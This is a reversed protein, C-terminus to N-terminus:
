IKHWGQGGGGEGEGEEGEGRGIAIIHTCHQTGSRWQSQTLGTNRAPGGSRDHSALTAHRVEFVSRTLGTNRPPGWGRDHTALTAHRVQVAIMHTGHSADPRLWFIHRDSTKTAAHCSHCSRAVNWFFLPGSTTGTNTMVREFIYCGMIDPICEWGEVGRIIDARTLSSCWVCLQSSLRVSCTDSTDTTCKMNKLRDPLLGRRVIGVRCTMTPIVRLLTIGKKFFCDKPCVQGSQGLSPLPQQGLLCLSEPICKREEQHHPSGDATGASQPAAEQAIEPALCFHPLCHPKTEQLKHVAHPMWKQSQACSKPTWQCQEHRKEPNGSEKSRAPSHPRWPVPLKHTHGQRCTVMVMLMLMLRSLTRGGKSQSVGWETRVQLFINICKRCSSIRADTKEKMNIDDMVPIYMWKKAGHMNSTPKTCMVSRSETADGWLAVRGRAEQKKCTSLLSKAVRNLMAGQCKPIKLASMLSKSMNTCGSSGNGSSFAPSKRM